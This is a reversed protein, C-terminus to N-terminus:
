LESIKGPCLDKRPSQAPRQLDEPPHLDRLSLCRPPRSPCTASKYLYHKKIVARTIAAPTPTDMM